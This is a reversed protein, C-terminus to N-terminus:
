KLYLIYKIDIVLIKQIMLKRSIPNIMLIEYQKINHGPNAPTRIKGSKDDVKNPQSKRTSGNSYAGLLM